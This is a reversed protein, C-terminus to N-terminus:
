PLERSSLSIERNVSYEQLIRIYPSPRIRPPILLDIFRRFLHCRHSLSTCFACAASYENDPAIYRLARVAAFLVRPQGTRDGVPDQIDTLERFFLPSNQHQATVRWHVKGFREACEAVTVATDGKIRQRLRVASSFLKAAGAEPDGYIM